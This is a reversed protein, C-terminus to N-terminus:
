GGERAAVVDVNQVAVKSNVSVRLQDPRSGDKFLAQWRAKPRLVLTFTCARRPTPTTSPGSAIYLPGVSKM